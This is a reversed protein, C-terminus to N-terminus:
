EVTCGRHLWAVVVGRGGEADVQAAALDLCPQEVGSAAFEPALPQGLAAELDAQLAQGNLCTSNANKIRGDLGPNGPTGIGISLPTGPAQARARAVLATIAALTAAYDRQPTAIRERWLERRAADFLRAEIKSGGLDIGLASTADDHCPKM